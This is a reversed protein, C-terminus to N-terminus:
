FLLRRPGSFRGAPFKRRLTNYIIFNQNDTPGNTWNQKLKVIVKSLLFPFPLISRLRQKRAVPFSYLFWWAEVLMGKRRVIM